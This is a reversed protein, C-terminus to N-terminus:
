RIKIDTSLKSYMDIRTKYQTDCNKLNQSIVTPLPFGM